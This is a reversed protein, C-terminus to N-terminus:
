LFETLMLSFNVLTCVSFPVFLSPMKKKETLDVVKKLTQEPGQRDEGKM